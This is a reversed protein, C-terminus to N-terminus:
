EQLVGLRNAIERAGALNDCDIVQQRNMTVYLSSMNIGAEGLANSFKALEGPKNELQILIVERAGQKIGAAILAAETADADDTVIRILGTGGASLGAMGDINIGQNGLTEAIQAFAGPKDDLSFIFETAM